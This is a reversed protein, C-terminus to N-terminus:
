FLELQAPTQPLELRIEMTKLIAEAKARDASPTEFSVHVDRRLTVVAVNKRLREPDVRGRLRVPELQAVNNLINELSGYRELWAVATKPGVGEVGLINDSADGVLSLYDVMQEPRVGFREKVGNIDLVRWDQGVGYPPVLCQIREDVCQALDKDASAMLVRNGAQALQVAASVMGDDAEFDPSQCIGCGMALTLEKIYPVQVCMADPPPPRNAKYEPLIARRQASKALDFFVITKFPKVFELIKILFKGWGFIANTPMGDSRTLNKIAYFQRFVFHTGDILLWTEMM